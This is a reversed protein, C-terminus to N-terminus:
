GARSRPLTHYCNVVPSLPALDAWFAARQGMCEQPFVAIFPSSGAWSVIQALEADKESVSSNLIQALGASEENWALGPLVTM